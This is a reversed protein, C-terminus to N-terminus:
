SVLQGGPPLREAPHQFRVPLSEFVPPIVVLLSREGDKLRIFHIEGQRHDDICVVFPPPWLCLSTRIISPLNLNRLSGTGGSVTGLGSQPSTLHPREAPKHRRSFVADLLQPKMVTMRELRQKRPDGIRSGLSVLRAPGSAPLERMLLVMGRRRSCLPRSRRM